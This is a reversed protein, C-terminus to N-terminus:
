GTEPDKDPRDDVVVSHWGVRLNKGEKSENRVRIKCVVVERRRYNKAVVAIHRDFFLRIDALTWNWNRAEM